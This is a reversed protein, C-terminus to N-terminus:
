KINNYIQELEDSSFDYINRKEKFTKHFSFLGLVRSFMVFQEEKSKIM